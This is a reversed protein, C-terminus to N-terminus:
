SASARLTWKEWWVLMRCHRHSFSVTHVTSRDLAEDVMQSNPPLNTAASFSWSHTPGNRSGRVLLAHSVILAHAYSTRLKRCCIKPLQFKFVACVVQVVNAVTKKRVRNPIAQRRFRPQRAVKRPTRCTQGPPPKAGARRFTAPKCLLLIHGKERVFEERERKPWRM